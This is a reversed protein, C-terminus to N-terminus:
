SALLKLKELRANKVGKFYDSEIDMGFFIRALMLNKKIFSKDSTLKEEWIQKMYRKGFLEFGLKIDDFDGYKLLYEV